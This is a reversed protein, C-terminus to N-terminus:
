RERKWLEELKEYVGDFNLTYNEYAKVSEKGNIDNKRGDLYLEEWSCMETSIFCNGIQEDHFRMMEISFQSYHDDYDDNDTYFFRSEYSKYNFLMIKDSFEDMNQDCISNEYLEIDTTHALEAGCGIGETIYQFNKVLEHEEKTPVHCYLAPPIYTKVLAIYNLVIIADKNATVYDEDWNSEDYSDFFAGCDWNTEDVVDMYEKLSLMLNSYLWDSVIGKLRIVHNLPMMFVRYEFNKDPDIKLYNIFCAPEKNDPPVLDLVKDVAFVVRSFVSQLSENESFDLKRIKKPFHVLALELYSMIQEDSIAYNDEDYGYNFKYRLILEPLQEELQILDRAGFRRPQRQANGRPGGSGDHVISFPGIIDAGKKIAGTEGRAEDKLVRM